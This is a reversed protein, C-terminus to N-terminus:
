IQNTFRSSMSIERHKKIHFLEEARFGHTQDALLMRSAENFAPPQLDTAILALPHSPTAIGYSKWGHEVCQHFHSLTECHHGPKRSGLHLFVMTKRWCKWPFDMSFAHGPPSHKVQPLAAPPRKPSPLQRVSPAPSSLAPTGPLNESYITFLDSSHHM